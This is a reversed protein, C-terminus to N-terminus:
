GNGIGVDVEKIAPHLRVFESDFFSSRCNAAETKVVPTM